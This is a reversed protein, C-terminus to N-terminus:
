ANPSVYAAKVVPPVRFFHYPRDSFRFCGKTASVHCNILEHRGATAYCATLFLAVAGIVAIVTVIAVGEIYVLTKPQLLAGLVPKSFANVIM